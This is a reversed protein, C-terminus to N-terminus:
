RDHSAGTGQIRVAVNVLAGLAHVADATRVELGRWAKGLDDLLEEVENTAGLEHDVVGLEVDSEELM